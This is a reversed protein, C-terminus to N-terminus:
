QPSFGRTAPRVHLRGHEKYHHVWGRVTDPKRKRLLGARAVARPSTGDAVKLLAAAQERLYAKPERRLVEELEARQQTTLDLTLPQPM